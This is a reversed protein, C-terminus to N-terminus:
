KKETHIKRRYYRLILNGPNQLSTETLEFHEEIFQKSLGNERLTRDIGNDDSGTIYLILPCDTQILFPRFDTFESNNLGPHSSVTGSIYYLYGQHYYDPGGVINVKGDPSAHSKIFQIIEPPCSVPCWSNETFCSRLPRSYDGCDTGLTFGESVALFAILLCFFLKQFFLLSGITRSRKRFRISTTLRAIFCGIVLFVPWCALRLCNWHSRGTYYTFLGLGVLSIFLQIQDFKTYHNDLWHKFPLITGAAYVCLVGLWAGTLFSPMPLMYLGNLYLLKQHFISASFDFPKGDQISFWLIIGTFGIAFSAAFVLLERPRIRWPKWRVSRSLFLICFAGAVPVGTDLNWALSFGCFGGSLVTLFTQKWGKGSPSLASVLYIAAVACFVRIPNYAWYQPWRTLVFFVAAFILVTYLFHYRSFIRKVACWLILFMGAGLVVLTGYFVSLDPVGGTFTKNVLNLLPALFRYYNGYLHSDYFTGHMAQSIPYLVISINISQIANSFFYFFFWSALLVVPFIIFPFIFWYAHRYQEKGCFVFILGFLLGFSARVLIDFLPLWGSMFAFFNFLQWLLFAIEAFSGIVIVPLALDGKLRDVITPAARNAGMLLLPFVLLSSMWTLAEYIDPNQPNPFWQRLLFYLSSSFSLMGIFLLFLVVKFYLLKPVLTTRM